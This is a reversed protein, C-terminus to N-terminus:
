GRYQSWNIWREEPIDWLGEPNQSHFRSFPVEPVKNDGKFFVNRHLNGRDNTSSTFEYAIFTTFKGPQNYKEAAKILTRTFIKSLAGLGSRNPWFAM